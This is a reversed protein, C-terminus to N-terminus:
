QIEDAYYPCAVNIQWWQGGPRGVQNVSPTKFVVSNGSVSTSDTTSLFKTKIRDALILGDRTGKGAPSFVQAMAVGTHRIRPDVGVSVQISDGSVITWRIWMEDDPQDFPANDYAIAYEDGFEDHFRKRVVDHLKQHSVVAM